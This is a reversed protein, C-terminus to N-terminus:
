FLLLLFLGLFGGTVATVTGDTGLSRKGLPRLLERARTIRSLFYLLLAGSLILAQKLLYDPKFLKAAGPILDSLLNQFLLPLLTGSLIIGAGTLLVPLLETGPIPSIKNTGTTSKKPGPFLAALLKVVYAGSLVSAATLLAAVVPFPYLLGSLLQKSIYGGTLPLGALSLAGIIAAGRWLPNVKGSGFARRFDSLNRSGSAVAFSGVALFLLPKFLGHSVMHLFLILGAGGAGSVKAGPAILAGYGALLFGMQSISSYALLKKGDEQLLAKLGGYLATIAGGAMLLFPLGPFQGSGFFPALRFLLFIPIKILLGSLLASVPHVAMSHAEPLWGHFPFIAMRTGIGCLLAAAALALAPRTLDMTATVPIQLSGTSRYILFLAILYFFISVTGALLYRFGSLIARPAKKLGILIYASIAIIEFFVFISFLDRGMVVGQCAALFFWAYFFFDGSGTKDGWAYLLVPFAVLFILGNGGLSIIDFVLEIGLPAEWGGAGLSLVEGALVAVGGKWLLYLTAGSWLLLTAGLGAKVIGPHPFKKLIMALGGSLLSTLLFLIPIQM